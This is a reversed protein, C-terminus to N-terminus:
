MNHCSGQGQQLECRKPSQRLLSTGPHQRSTRWRTVEQRADRLGITGAEGYPIRPVHQLPTHADEIAPRCNCTLWRGCSQVRRQSRRRKEEGGLTRYQPESSHHARGPANEPRSAKAIENMDPVSPMNPHDQIKTLQRLRPVWSVPEEHRREHCIISPMAVTATPMRANKPIHRIGKDQM